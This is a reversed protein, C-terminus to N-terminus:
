YGPNQTINDTLLLQSEPIPFILEHPEIIYDDPNYPVGSRDITPDALEEQGHANLFSVLEQTSLFRKLDFWRHNEFALEVRREKLIAEKLNAQSVGSLPDLGARARVQNVLQIAENSGPSQENLAEALLLIAEAYRIVPWNDDTVGPLSHENMYKNIYPVEQLQGEPDIYNEQLSVDKRLDGDEYANIISNTPQNWGFTRVAPFGTVVGGSDFPAFIYAFESGVGLNNGGQYQIEFISESHNKNSPDFIDSYNNLLSYGLDDVVTRLPPIADASSGVTLYVKGLLTLAAAKPVRGIDESSYESKRPLFNSADQLDSIVQNYVENSSTRTIEFSSDIDEIPELILFIDGFYQTLHYYHFARLFLMEGKYQNKKNEDIDTGEIRKLITNINLLNNYTDEFMVNINFHFPAYTWFDISEIRNAQGRDQTTIQVTTNDTILENFIYQNDFINQLQGYAGNVAEKIQAENKYFDTTNISTPDSLELFDDTCSLICLSVLGLIILKYKNITKM